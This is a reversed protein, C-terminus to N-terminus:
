PADTSPSRPPRDPLEAAFREFSAVAADQLPAPLGRVVLVARGRREVRQDRDAAAARAAERAQDEDDWTTFWVAAGQGDREYVRLRDGAWGTAAARGAADGAARGLFVGLELEGLTDEEVVRWGAAELAAVPELAIPDPEERRLYARPHMVQEMSTPPAAFSRNVEAWGGGEYLRRAFALGAIYPVVLTVRLIAPARGLADDSAPASLERVMRDITRSGLLEAPTQDRREAAYFIMALTADGEALAKLANDADSDREADILRGFGLRQDQLAHVLEHLLVVRAEAAQPSSPARLLTRAVEDRLVLLHRHTDYFGLVQEGMVEALLARLDLGTPLLGLAEYVRQARALDDEDLEADLHAAIAPPDQIEVAVPERFTLGRVREADRALRDIVGRELATPPRGGTRPAHPTPRTATAEPSAAATTPPATTGSPATSAHPAGGCAALVLALWARRM